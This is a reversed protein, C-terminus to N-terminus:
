HQIPHFPSELEHLDSAFSAGRPVCLINAMGVGPWINDPKRAWNEPHYMVPCDWYIRYGAARIWDVLDAAQAKRDNEVYMWPQLRNITVAGGKLVDLEMGEADVKLLRLRPLEGFLDDLTELPAADFEATIPLSPDLEMAGYNAGADYEVRPVGIAGSTAGLAAEIARVNRVDNLALNGCLAYYIQRQPEFAHVCGTPGVFRALPLTHAGINAGVDIVIDGARVLQRFLEVEHQCYEGYEELSRGVYLDATNRIMM